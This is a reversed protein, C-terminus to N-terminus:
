VSLYADRVMYGWRTSRDVVPTPRLVIASNLVAVVSFAKNDISELRDTRAIAGGPPVHLTVTSGAFLWQEPAALKTRVWFVPPGAMSYGDCYDFNVSTIDITYPM